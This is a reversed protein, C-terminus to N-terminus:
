KQYIMFGDYAWGNNGEYDVRCWRGKKGAEKPLCGLVTLTAGHPIQLIRDGTESSPQTRLALFGDGPSNVKATVKNSQPNTNAITTVNPKTVKQQQMQKELNAIKDKLKETESDVQNTNQSSDAINSNKSFPSDIQTTNINTKNAVVENKGSDRMMLWGAVLVGGLLVLLGLGLVLGLVLKLNSKKEPQPQSITQTQIQPKTEQGFNVRIPHHEFNPNTGLSSSNLGAPIVQTAAEDNNEFAFLATGDTLCFSLSDDTYTNKCVPCQKM